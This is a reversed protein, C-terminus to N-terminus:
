IAQVIDLRFLLGRASWSPDGSLRAATMLEAGEGWWLLGDAVLIGEAFAPPRWYPSVDIVAPPLGRHFLVNGSLDGHV